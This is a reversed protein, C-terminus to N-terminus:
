EETNVTEEVAAEVAEATEAVEEVAEAAAEVQAEEVQGETQPGDVQGEEEVVPAVKKARIRTDAAKPIAPKNDRPTRERRESREGQPKRDGSRRERRDGDRRNRRNDRRGDRGESRQEKKEERVAGQLGKDLIEGHNIWVKIGIKGYTTDAEAFGYDIDARITHLPVNGESYKESRAIEAGGLRGACVVKIGKAGSKMTKQIAQKMARRFSIRKELAQAVSEATLKADLEARRVEEISLEVTKGTLKVLAAKLEDAGTGSKGVVMGPRAVLTTVRVKNEAAREILVRAVGAAYLKKEIYKRIQNDEVLMDAFVGKGAYWKSDWDKIVGVRLGHPSVKQGM